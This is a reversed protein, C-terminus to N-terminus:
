ATVFPSSTTDTDNKMLIKCPSVAHTSHQIYVPFIFYNKGIKNKWNTIKIGSYLNRQQFPYTNYM